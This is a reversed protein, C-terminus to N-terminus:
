WAKRLGTKSDAPMSRAHISFASRHEVHSSILCTAQTQGYTELGSIFFPIFYEVQKGSLWELGLVVVM